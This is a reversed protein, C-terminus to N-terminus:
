GLEELGRICGLSTDEFSVLLVKVLHSFWEYKKTSLYIHKILCHFATESQKELWVNVVRIMSTQSGLINHFKAGTCHLLKTGHATSNQGMMELSAGAVSQWIDVDTWKQCHIRRGCLPFDLRRLNGRSELWDYNRGRSSRLVEMFGETYVQDAWFDGLVWFIIRKGKNYVTIPYLDAALCSYLTLDPLM